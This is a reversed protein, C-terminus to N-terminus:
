KECHLNGDNNIIRTRCQGVDKLSTGNWGGNVKQCNAYLTNGQMYMNQCTRKYDGPPLGGQSGGREGGRWGGEGAEGCRLNGNENIVQGGRCSRYDLSSNHWGGDVKQCSASLTDGNM